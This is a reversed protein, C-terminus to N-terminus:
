TLLIGSVMVNWAFVVYMSIFIIISKWSYKGNSQRFQIRYFHSMRVFLSYTYCDLIFKAIFSLLYVVEYAKIRKQTNM